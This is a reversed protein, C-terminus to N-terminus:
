YRWGYVLAAVVLLAAMLAIGAGLPDVVLSIGVSVGKNPQWGGVWNVVRGDSTHALLVSDLVAVGLATVAAVADSLTRPLRAGIVLLVAAALVPVVVPLPAAQEVTM